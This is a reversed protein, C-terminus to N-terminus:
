LVDAARCSHTDPLLLEEMCRLARSFDVDWNYTQRVAQQGRRGMAALEEGSNKLRLIIEAIEEPGSGEPIVAGCKLEGVIRQTAEIATTIVPLGAALYHFLKNSVTFSTVAHVPYPIIGLDGQQLWQPVERPNIVGEAHVYGQVGAEEVLVDLTKRDGEVGAIRLRVNRDRPVIYSMAKIFPAIASFDGRMLGIFMLTFVGGRKRPANQVGGIEHLDVTNSVVIVRGESLVQPPLDRMREPVVVWTRSAHKVCAKELWGILHVNRTFLHALRTKPKTRMSAENHEQLDLITPKGLLKAALIMPPAIRLNSAIFLDPRIKRGVRWIWIVWFPNLPSPTGLLSYLFSRQFYNFRMVRAYGLDEVTPAGRRNWALITVQHGRETLSHAV